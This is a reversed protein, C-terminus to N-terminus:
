ADSPRSASPSPPIRSPIGSDASRRRVSPVPVSAQLQSAGNLWVAFFTASVPSVEGIQSPDEYWSAPCPFVYLLDPHKYHAVQRCAQCTGCGTGEECLWWSALAMATLEKGVTPPGHFILTQSLRNAKMARTLFGIAWRQGVIAGFPNGM